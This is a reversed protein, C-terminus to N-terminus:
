NSGVKKIIETVDDLYRSAADAVGNDSGFREALGKRIGILAELIASRNDPDQTALATGYVQLIAKIAVIEGSLIDREETLWALQEASNM